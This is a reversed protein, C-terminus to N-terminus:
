KELLKKKMIVETQFSKELQQILLSVTKSTIIIIKGLNVSIM